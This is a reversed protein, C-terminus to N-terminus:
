LSSQQKTVDHLQLATFPCVYIVDGYLYVSYFIIPMTYASYANKGILHPFAKVNMTLQPM